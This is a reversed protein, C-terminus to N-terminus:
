LRKPLAEACVFALLPHARNRDLKAAQKVQDATGGQLENVAFGTARFM